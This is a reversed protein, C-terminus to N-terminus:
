GGTRAQRREQPAPLRFYMPVLNDPETFLGQQAMRWGVAHVVEARPVAVEESLVDIGAEHLTKAHRTAGEGLAALPRPFGEVLREIRVLGAQGLPTYGNRDRALEFGQAFVQRRRADILVVLHQPPELIQLANAAIVELTPVAVVRAGCALALTKAFTVGIRAGTFSGPGVSVYVQEILAPAWGFRKCLRNTAPLLEAAYDRDAAFSLSGVLSQGLGLAIGGRSATTEVALIKPESAM